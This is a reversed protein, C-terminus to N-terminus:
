DEAAIGTVSEIYDLFNSVRTFVVPKGSACDGKVGFSVIGHLVRSASLPDVFSVPGGADGACPSPGHAGSQGSTDLCLKTGIVKNGFQKECVSNDALQVQAVQLRNANNGADSFRGWGSIVVSEGVLNKAANAYTPLAIVAVRQNLTLQTTLQILAIDNDLFMPEFHPHITRDLATTTVRQANADNLNLIGARVEIAGTRGDVCTGSTIVWSASLISGSCFLNDGEDLLAVQFPLAAQANGGGSIRLQHASRSSQSLSAGAALTAMAAGLLLCSLAAGLVNM